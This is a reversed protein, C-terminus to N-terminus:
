LFPILETWIADLIDTTPKEYHATVTVCARQHPLMISFQGYIGDMRWADDRTCSWCHLGYSANDGPRGTPTLESRMLQVYDAPVLQQGRFNGDYLLTEGLRAIEDTRLHLGMAGLPFGLPCRFWQPNGIGLPGFLRPMLFERLDEGSASAIIRGLLYSNTGRYAYQSGPASSLTTALFAQAPDGPHDLDPDDWTLDVGATMSLLHRVTMTEVGAAATSAFEPLHTLVPDDLGLLGEARAIGVAVSTFTKSVSYIDRRDDSVWRFSVAEEGEQLVHVGELGLGREAVAQRLGLLGVRAGADM